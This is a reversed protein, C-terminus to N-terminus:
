AMKVDEGEEGLEELEERAEEEAKREEREARLAAAERELGMEVDYEDSDVDTGEDDEPAIFDDDEDGEASVPRFVAERREARNVRAVLEVNGGEGVELAVVPAGRKRDLARTVWGDGAEDRVTAGWLSLEGVHWAYLHIGHDCSRLLEDVYDTLFLSGDTDLTSLHLYHSAPLHIVWSWFPEEDDSDVDSLEADPSDSDVADPSNPPELPAAAARQKITLEEWGDPAFTAWLKADAHAVVFDLKADYELAYREIMADPFGLFRLFDDPEDAAGDLAAQLEEPPVPEFSPHAHLLEDDVKAMEDSVAFEGCGQACEGFAVEWFRTPCRFVGDQADWHSRLADEDGEAEEEEGGAACGDTAMAASGESARLRFDKARSRFTAVTNPVGSRVVDAHRRPWAHALLESVSEPQAGSSSRAASM